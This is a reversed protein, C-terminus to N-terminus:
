ELPDSTKNMDDKILRYATAAIPVSLLMGGIGMIGGGITVAALVWIGPLGMAKGVVKPYIINGEFQQLLILFILFILAKLPSVALIMFAGVGGGIFAGAIPILATFAVLSGIMAAYPLRLVLMGLACLVGLIVAETCQGVIYSRFSEDMTRLVYMTKEYWSEKMYHHMLRKCQGSLKEKGMLIYVSFIIGIFITVVGSFVSSVVDFVTGVANGLGSSIANLLKNLGNQWDLSSLLSSMGETLLHNEKLWSTVIRQVKPIDDILLSICSSLQPIILVAILVIIGFMTIFAMLMSLLRRSKLLAPSKVNKFCKNEYTNMLINLLYAIACGAILPAAAGILAGLFGAFGNWYVICLYLIFVTIGIKICSKTDIKM